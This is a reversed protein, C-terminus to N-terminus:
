VVSAPSDSQSALDRDARAIGNDAANPNSDDQIPPHPETADTAADTPTAAANPAESPVPDPPPAVSLPLSTSAASTPLSIPMPTSTRPTSPTAAVHTSRTPTGVGLPDEVQIKEEAANSAATQSAEKAEPPLAPLPSEPRPSEPRPSGPDVQRFGVGDPASLLPPPPPSKAGNVSPTPSTVLTASRVPPGSGNVSPSPSSNANATVNAAAAPSLSNWRLRNALLRPNAAPNANANATPKTNFNTTSASPSVAQPVRLESIVIELMGSPAGVNKLESLNQHLFRADALLRRSDIILYKTVDRFLFAAWGKRAEESPLVLKAYEESLRHNIAAFVQAM